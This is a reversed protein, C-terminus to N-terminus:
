TKRGDYVLSPVRYVVYEFKEKTVLVSYDPYGEMAQLGRLYRQLEASEGM